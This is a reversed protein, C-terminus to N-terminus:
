PCTMYCLIVKDGDIDVNQDTDGTTVTQPAHRASARRPSPADQKKNSAARSGTGSGRAPSMAQIAQQAKQAADTLPQATSTTGTSASPKSNSIKKSSSPLADSIAQGLVQPAEKLKDGTKNVTRMLKRMSLAIGGPSESSTKQKKSQHSKDTDADDAKAANRAAAAALDQAGSIERVKSKKALAKSTHSNGHLQERVAKEWTATGKKPCKSVDWNYQM